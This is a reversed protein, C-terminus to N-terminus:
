LLIIGSKLLHEDSEMITVIADVEKEMAAIVAIM